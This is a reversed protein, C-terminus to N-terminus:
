GMQNWLTRGFQTMSGNPFRAAIDRLANRASDRNRYVKWYCEALRYLAMETEPATPHHQVLLGYLNMAMQPNGNRDLNGAARLLQVPHYISANGKLTTIYYAVLSPDRDILSQGAGVFAKELDRSYGLNLAPKIMARIVEPDSPDHDLMSQLAHFPVMSLDKMEAHRAKAESLEATDRKMGMALCLLAGGFVGGVHAFNAVGGSMGTTSDLFGNALDMFVFFGIVWVAAVDALGRWFWTVWYFVCVPSWSFLFWYAGLVGMICGSAGIGPRAIGVSAVDMLAQLLGGVLGTAFYLALFRPIGLRDEVAPGFVWFFWMNGLIHFLNAHLFAASIFNLFPSRGLAFAYDKVVDMRIALFSDTTFAYVLLNLAIISVTAIPFKKVPNKVRYPILL